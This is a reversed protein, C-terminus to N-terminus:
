ADLCYSSFKAKAPIIANSAQDSLRPFAGLFLTGAAKDFSDAFPNSSEYGLRACGDKTDKTMCHLPDAFLHLLQEAAIHLIVDPRRPYNLPVLLPQLAGICFLFVNDNPPLQNLFVQLFHAVRILRHSFGLFCLLLHIQLVSFVVLVASM